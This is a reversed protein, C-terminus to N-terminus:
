KETQDGPCVLAHDPAHKARCAEGCYTMSPCHPCAVRAPRGDLVCVNSGGPDHRARMQIGRFVEMCAPDQCAFYARVRTSTDAPAHLIHVRAWPRERGFAPCFYCPINGGRDCRAAAKNHVSSLITALQDIRRADPVSFPQTAIPEPSAGTMLDVQYLTPMKNVPGGAHVPGGDVGEEVHDAAGAEREEQQLRPRVRPAGQRRLEQQAELRARVRAAGVGDGVDGQAAHGEPPPAGGVRRRAVPPGPREQPEAAQPM